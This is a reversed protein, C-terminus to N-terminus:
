ESTSLLRREVRPNPDSQVGVARAVRCGAGSAQGALYDLLVTKGVGPDGRVVLARSQGARVAEILRDLADRESRRDTLETARSRRRPNATM